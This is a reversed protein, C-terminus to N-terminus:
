VSRCLYRGTRSPRRVYKESTGELSKGIIRETGRNVLIRNGESVYLFLFLDSPGQDSSYHLHQVVKM